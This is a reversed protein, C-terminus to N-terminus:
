LYPELQKMMKLSHTKKGPKKSQRKWYAYAARVTKHRGLYALVKQRPRGDVRISHVLYHYEAGSVWKKRIYPVFSFREKL